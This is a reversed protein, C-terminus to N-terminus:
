EATKMLIMSDKRSEQTMRATFGIAHTRLQLITAAELIITTGMKLWICATASREASPTIPIEMSTSSALISIYVVASVTKVSIMGIALTM